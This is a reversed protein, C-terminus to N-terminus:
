PTVTDALVDALTGRPFATIKTTRSANVIDIGLTSLPAIMRDFMPIALAFPPVTKDPHEGFFHQGSMDYGLLVIRSAGLHAAVNIACYGSSYGTGVGDPDYSFKGLGANKLRSVDIYAPRDVTYKAGHFTPAGSHAKWWKADAAFLVDSEPAMRYADNIAIMRVNAAILADVDNRCLSPGTGLCAITAGPFARPVTAFPMM